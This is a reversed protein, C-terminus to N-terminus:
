ELTMRDECLCKNVCGKSNHYTRVLQEGPGTRPIPKLRVSEPQLKVKDPENTKARSDKRLIDFYKKSFALM